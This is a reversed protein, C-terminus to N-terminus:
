LQPIPVTGSKASVPLAFARSFQGPPCNIKPPIHGLPFHRTSASVVLAHTVTVLLSLQTRPTSLILLTSQLTVDVPAGDSSM